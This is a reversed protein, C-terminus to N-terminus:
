WYTYRTRALHIRGVPQDGEPLYWFVENDVPVRMGDRQEYGRYVAGWPAREYGEDMARPRSPTYSKVIEGTDNFTFEISVTLDGDTLSATARSDDIATWRVGCAPLLATPLWTAEALYRVLAGENLEPDGQQDVVQKLAAAEAHMSAIGNVYADRVFAPVGGGMRIRADWVFGPLDPRVVQRARMPRRSREGVGMWFEGEQTLHATRVMRQGETLVQRFYRQVPAPLEGLDAFRVTRPQDAPPEPANLLWGLMLDTDQQWKQRRRGLAAGAVGAAAAVAGAIMLSRRVGV